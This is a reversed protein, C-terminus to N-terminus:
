EHLGRRRLIELLEGPDNSCIMEAGMDLCLDVGAENSLSTPAWVRVGTEQAFKRIEEVTVRDPMGFVCACYAYDYPSRAADGVLNFAPFYVHQRYKGPYKAAIYENLPNSFSNLVCRHGYNYEELMAIALDCTRFAVEEGVQTPYEKLEIDLTMTPHDKVLEMLERLTPIRCGAFEAGKWSGADLAKLEALTYDSVRGTGNTTRDLTDDHILVLEGDRTLHVDTEIQDVGLELAARFAEVTNEPYKGSWGRHAAVYINSTSQRWYNM